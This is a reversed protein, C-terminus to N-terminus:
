QDVCQRGVKLVSAVWALVGETEEFLPLVGGLHPSARLASVEGEM